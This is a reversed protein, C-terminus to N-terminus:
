RERLAVVNLRWPNSDAEGESKVAISYLKYLSSACSSTGGCATVYAHSGLWACILNQDHGQEIAV